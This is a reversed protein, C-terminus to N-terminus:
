IKVMQNKKFFSDFKLSKSMLNNKKNYIKANWYLYKHFNFITYISKIIFGLTYNKKPKIRLILNRIKFDVKFIFDNDVKMIMLWSALKVVWFM